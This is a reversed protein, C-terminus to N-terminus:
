LSSDIEFSYSIVDPCRILAEKQVGLPTELDEVQFNLIDIDSGAFVADVKVKEYMTFKVDRKVMAILSRLYRERLFSRARQESRLDVCDVPGSASITPTCLAQYRASSPDFGRSTGDPGRPLRLVCVPTKMVRRTFFSRYFVVHVYQLKYCLKLFHLIMYKPCCSQYM